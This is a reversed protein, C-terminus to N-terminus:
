RNQFPFIIFRHNGAIQENIVQELVGNGLILYRILNRIYQYMQPLFEQNKKSELKGAFLVVLDKPGFSLSQGLLYHIAASHLCSCYLM